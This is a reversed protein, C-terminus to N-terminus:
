SAAPLSPPLWPCSRPVSTHRSSGKQSRPTEGGSERPFSGEEARQKGSRRTGLRPASTLLILLVEEAGMHARGMGIELIAPELHTPPAVPICSPFPCDEAGWPGAAQGPTPRPAHAQLSCRRSGRQGRPAFCSTPADGTFTQAPFLQTAPYM